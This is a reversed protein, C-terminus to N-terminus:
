IILGCFCAEGRVPLRSSGSMDSRLRKLAVKGLTSHHGCLLDCFAGSTNVPVTYDVEIDGSKFLTIAAPLSQILFRPARSDLTSHFTRLSEKLAEQRQYAQLVQQELM